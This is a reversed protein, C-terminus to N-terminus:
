RNIIRLNVMAKSSKSPSAAGAAACVEAGEAVGVPPSTPLAACRLPNGAEPPATANGVTALGDTVGVGAGPVVAMVDEAAEVVVVPEVVVPAEVELPDPGDPPTPPPLRPAPAALELLAPPRPPPDVLPAALAVPEEAM